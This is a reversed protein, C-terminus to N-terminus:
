PNVLPDSDDLSQLEDRCRQLRQLTIPKEVKMTYNFQCKLVKGRCKMIWPFKHDIHKKVEARLTEATFMIKTALSVLTKSIMLTDMM